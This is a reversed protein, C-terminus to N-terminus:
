GMPTLLDWHKITLELAIDKRFVRDNPDRVFMVGYDIGTVDSQASWTRGAVNVDVLEPHHLVADYAEAYRWCSRTLRQEDKDEVLISLLLSHLKFDHVNAESTRRTRETVVFACPTEYARFRSPEGIFYRDRQIAPLPISSGYKGQVTALIAPARAVCYTILDTTLQEVNLM